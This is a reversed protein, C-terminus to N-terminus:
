IPFLFPARQSASMVEPIGRPLHPESGGHSEEDVDGGGVDHRLQLTGCPRDVVQVRGDERPHTEPDEAHPYFM